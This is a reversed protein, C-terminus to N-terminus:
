VACKKLYICVLATYGSTDTVNPSVGKRLHKEVDDVNGDVAATWIGREFEVEHLTQHVSPNSFHGGCSHM